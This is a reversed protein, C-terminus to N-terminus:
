FGPKEKPQRLEAAQVIESSRSWRASCRALPFKLRFAAKGELTNFYSPPPYQLLEPDRAIDCDPATRANELEKTVLPSSIDRPVGM